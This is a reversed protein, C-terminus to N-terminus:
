FVGFTWGETQSVKQTLGSPQWAAQATALARLGASAILADTQDDSLDSNGEYPKSGLGALASNLTEVDRVKGGKLGAHQIFARCYIETVLSKGRQPAHFPWIPLGGQSLRHLVRMGAFSAKSVQAAGIADFVCAAKGGGGTNYAQECVRWRMFDAKQGDAKGLYFHSRYGREIFSHAGCDKDLECIDDVHAWFAPAEQPVSEGPLYAGADLFPPAFSFDFGTLTPRTQALVFDAVAERTWGNEPSMLVPAHGDAGCVAVCLKKAYATKAGSWDVAIFQEFPGPPSALVPPEAMM